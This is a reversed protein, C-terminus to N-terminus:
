RSFTVTGTTTVNFIRYEGRDDSNDGSSPMLQKKGQMFRYRQLTISARPQPDGYEDLIRGTVIAGPIMKFVVGKVSQGESLSIRRGELRSFSGKDDASTFRPHTVNFYYDGAPVKEFVFMGAENTAAAIPTRQEPSSLTVLAKRVPAGSTSLVVASSDHL